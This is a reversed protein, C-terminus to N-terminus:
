FEDRDYEFRDDDYELSMPFDDDYDEEDDELAYLADEDFDRLDESETDTLDPRLRGHRLETTDLDYRM